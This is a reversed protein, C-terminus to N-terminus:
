SPVRMHLLDHMHDPCSVALSAFCKTDGSTVLVTDLNILPQDRIRGARTGESRMIGIGSTECAMSPTYVLANFITKEL